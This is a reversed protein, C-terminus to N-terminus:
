SDWEPKQVLNDVANLASVDIDMAEALIRFKELDTMSNRKVRLGYMKIKYSMVLVDNMNYTYIPFFGLFSIHESYVMVKVKTLINMM